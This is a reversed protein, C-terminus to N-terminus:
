HLVLSTASSTGMGLFLGTAFGVITSLQFDTISLVTDKKGLVFSLGCVSLMTLGLAIKSAGDFTVPDYRTANDISYVMSGVTSTIFFLTSLPSKRAPERSNQSLALYTRNRM